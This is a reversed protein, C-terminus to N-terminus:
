ANNPPLIKINDIQCGYIDCLRKLVDVKPFREGSEYFGLMRASINAQKAAANQTLGANVRAAALSIKM